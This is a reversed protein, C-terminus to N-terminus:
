RAARCEICYKAGVPYTDGCSPCVDPLRETSGTAILDPPEIQALLEDVSIPIPIFAVLYPISCPRRIVVQDYQFALEQMFPITM